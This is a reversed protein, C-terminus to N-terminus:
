GEDVLESWNGAFADLKTAAQCMLRVPPLDWFLAKNAARVAKRDILTILKEGGPTSYPPDGGADSDLRRALGSGCLVRELLKEPLGPESTRM